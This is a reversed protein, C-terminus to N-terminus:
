GSGTGGDWAALALGSAPGQHRAPRGPRRRPPGHGPPPYPPPQRTRPAAGPRVCRSSRWAVPDPQALEARLRPRPWRAPWFGWRPGPAGTRLHRPLDGGKELDPRHVVLRLVFHRANRRPHARAQLRIHRWRHDSRGLITWALERDQAFSTITVTVDYLGMPYDNLSERDMHVVFSDGVATVPNGTASQLMGSSDIAVHGQPDCLLRFIAAPDAAITRKVELWEDPAEENTM